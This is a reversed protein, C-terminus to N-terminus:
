EKNNQRFIEIIKQALQEPASLMPWHGTGIYNLSANLKKLEENGPASIIRDGKGWLFTTSINGNLNIKTFLDRSLARYFALGNLTESEMKLQTHNTTGTVYEMFSRLKFYHKSLIKPPRIPIQFLLMYCSQIWQKPWKLRNLFIEFPLSDIYIMAKTQPIKYALCKLYAGGMDHGILVVNKKEGVIKSILNCYSHLRLKELSYTQGKFTGPAFPAICNFDTANKKFYDFIESWIYANDPFGHLLLLTNKGSPNCELYTIEDEVIQM